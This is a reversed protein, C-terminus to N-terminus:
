IFYDEHVNNVEGRVGKECSEVKDEDRKVRVGLYFKFGIRVSSGLLRGLRLNMM